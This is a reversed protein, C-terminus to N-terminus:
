PFKLAPKIFIIFLRIMAGRQAPAGIRNGWSWGQYTRNQNYLFLVDKPHDPTKNFFFIIKILFWVHVFFYYSGSKQKKTKFIKPALWAWRTRDSEFRYLGLHRKPAKGILSVVRINSKIEERENDIQQM